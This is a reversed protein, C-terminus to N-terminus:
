KLMKAPLRARSSRPTQALSLLSGDIHFAMQHSTRSLSLPIPPQPRFASPRRRPEDQSAPRMPSQEHELFRKAHVMVDAIHGLPKGRLSVHRNSRFQKM